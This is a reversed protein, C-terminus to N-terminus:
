RDWTRTSHCANCDQSAKNGTHDRPAGEAYTGNHCSKCNSTIGTHSM